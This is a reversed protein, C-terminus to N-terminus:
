AFSIIICTKGEFSGTSNLLDGDARGEINPDIIILSSNSNISQLPTETPELEAGEQHVSQNFIVLISRLAPNKDAKQSLLHTFFPDGAELLSSFIVRVADELTEVRECLEQCSEKSCIPDDKDFQITVFNPKEENPLSRENAMAGMLLCFVIFVILLTRNLFWCTSKKTMIAVLIGIM